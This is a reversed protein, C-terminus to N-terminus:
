FKIDDAGIPAREIPREMRWGCDGRSGPANTGDSSGQYDNCVCVGRKRDCMGMAPGGCELNAQNGWAFHFLETIIVWTVSLECCIKM